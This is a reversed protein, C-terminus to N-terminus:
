PLIKFEIRRNKAQGEASANSAIPQDPGVGSVQLAAAPLGKSVLYVKVANARAQSLLMNSTRAGVGDTHGLVHVKRDGVSQLVPLLADLVQRGIDTLVASGFEFEVIKGALVGDIRAQPAAAIQLQNDVTYTPNLSAVLGSAIKEKAAANDIQGVLEVANGSVRLHGRQVGRLDPTVMKKVQEAWQPPASSPAVGLQDVVRAAGYIDRVRGLILQRATEDPVTGSVVVPGKGQTSPGSTDAPNRLPQQALASVAWTALLMAAWSRHLLRTSVIHTM